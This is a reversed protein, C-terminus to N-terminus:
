QLVSNSRGEAAAQVAGLRSTFNEKMPELLRGISKLKKREETAQGSM